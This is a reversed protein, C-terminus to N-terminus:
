KEGLKKLEGDSFCVEYFLHCKGGRQGSKNEILNLPGLLRNWFHRIEAGKSCVPFEIHYRVPRTGYILIQFFSLSGSGNLQLGVQLGPGNAETVFANDIDLKGSLKSSSVNQKLRDLFQAELKTLSRM